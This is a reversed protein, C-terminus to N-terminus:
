VVRGNETIQLNAGLFANHFADRDMTDLGDTQYVQIMKIAEAPSCDIKFVKMARRIRRWTIVGQEKSSLWNWVFDEAEGLMDRNKFSVATPDAPVRKQRKSPSDSPSQRKRKEVDSDVTEQRRTETERTERRETERRGSEFNQGEGLLQYNVTKRTARKPRNTTTAMAQVPYLKPEKKNRPPTDSPPAMSEDKDTEKTIDAEKDKETEKNGDGTEETEVVPEEIEEDKKLNEVTESKLNSNKLNECAPDNSTTESIINDPQAISESEMAQEQDDNQAKQSENQLPEEAATESEEIQNVPNKEIQSPEPSTKEPKNNPTKKDPTPKESKEAKTESPKKEPTNKIADSVKKEPTAKEKTDLAKKEPTSKEKPPTHKLHDSKDPSRPSTKEGNTRESEQSAAYDANKKEKRTQRLSQEIAQQLMDAEFEAVVDTIKGANKPTHQKPSTPSHESNENSLQRKPAM